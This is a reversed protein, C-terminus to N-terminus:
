LSGRSCIPYLEVILNEIPILKYSRLRPPIEICGDIDCFAPSKILSCIMYAWGSICKELEQNELKMSVKSNASIQNM